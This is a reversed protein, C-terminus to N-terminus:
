TEQSMAQNPQMPTQMPSPPHRTQYISAPHHAAPPWKSLVGLFAFRGSRHTSPAYNEVLSLVAFELLLYDEFAQFYTPTQRGKNEIAYRRRKERICHRLVEIVV